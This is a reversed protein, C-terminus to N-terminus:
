ATRPGGRAQHIPERARFLKEPITVDAVVGSHHRFGCHRLLIGHIASPDIDLAVHPRDQFPV